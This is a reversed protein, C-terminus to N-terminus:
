LRLWEALPPLSLGLFPFFLPLNPFVRIKWNQQDKRSRTLLMKRSRKGIPHPSISPWSSSHSAQIHFSPPTLFTHYARLQYSYVVVAVM